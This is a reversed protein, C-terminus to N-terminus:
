CDLPFPMRPNWATPPARSDAESRENWTLQRLGVRVESCSPFPKSFQNWIRHMVANLIPFEWCLSCRFLLVTDRDWSPQLQFRWKNEHGDPEWLHELLSSLDHTSELNHAELNNKLHPRCSEMSKDGTILCILQRSFVKWEFYSCLSTLNFLIPFLIGFSIPVM